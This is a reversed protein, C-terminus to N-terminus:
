TPEKIHERTDTFFADNVRADEYEWTDPDELVCYDDEHNCFDHVTYNLERPSFPEVSLQPGPGIILEVDRRTGDAEEIALFYRRRQHPSGALDTSTAWCRVDSM